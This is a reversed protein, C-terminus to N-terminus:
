SAVHRFQVSFDPYRPALECPSQERDASQSNPPAHNAPGISVVPGPEAHEHSLSHVRYVFVNPPPLSSM